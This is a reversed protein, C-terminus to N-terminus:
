IAIKEKIGNSIEEKRARHDSILSELNGSYLDM